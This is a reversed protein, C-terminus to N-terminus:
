PKLENLREIGQNQSYAEIRSAEPLVPNGGENSPKAPLKGVLEALPALVFAREHMRPHPLTLDPRDLVVGGFWLLDLDLTRPANRYPRERDHAREIGQLVGLLERPGLSTQLAVVANLFDPGTADVPKTRYLRSAGEVCSLPAAGLRALADQFSAVVDGLNGGLGVYARFGPPQESM